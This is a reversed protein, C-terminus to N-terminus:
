AFELQEIILQANYEGRYENVALRYALTVLERTDALIEPSQNFAIADVLQRESGTPSIVLKLHKEGLVRRSIVRFTGDFLPEPFHQGWPGAERLIVAFDLSFCDGDLKGDSLLSPSFMEPESMAKVAADFARTFLALDDRRITLGAAMAHGGFRQLVTPHRTAVRDLVDRIHVGHISRASGKIVPVGAEEGADAFIIVPRHLSEKIRSALIGIVGQHWGPNYLCVGYQDPTIQMNSLLQLAEERMDSEIAKRERNMADLQVALQRAVLEDDALLCRIGLSMDDLRGAANLRPGAAFGLDTAVAGAPNRGGAELLARVGPCGRGSRILQLGNRVLIRNNTDLPVVDAVTGLAVLDLLLALNPESIGAKRFWLVDRLRTRLAALLYFVVGVGALVKSPFECGAQNPNIIVDAEPVTAGPLHHDTVLVQMGYSRALAVGEVSSIGNDVTVLLHPKRQRAIEVIEPTLGYGFEFRNPVLFDAQRCGMLGLGRLLLACSTAGDADFDAVVLIRNGSEVHAALLSAAADLNKMTAPPHLDSLSLQLEQDTSLGRAAYIKQLVPHVATSFGPSVKIQRPILPRPAANMRHHYWDEGPAAPLEDTL